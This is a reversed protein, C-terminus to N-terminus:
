QHMLLPKPDDVRGPPRVGPGKGKIGLDKDMDNVYKQLRKIVDPHQSAVDTTESIDTDLNYLKPFPPKSATQPQGQLKNVERQPSIAMKWPGSRVAQLQNGDFYYQVKRKSETAKGLLLPSIDVGDIKRDTPVSGGALHVFTPLVDINGTVVDCTTGAAIHGPWWAITPERMGGEYTGGKGGRLPTALGAQDGQTLWPGNDSSFLVLTNKSLNLQRITDMVKGTSYDMEQIWDGYKGNKSKGQFAKGPHLPVHVATHAFYLFFPGAKHDRIFKVAEKTYLSEIVDQRDGNMTAIVKGDRVLPLPPRRKRFPVQTQGDWEGGMDNSYPLGLYHDFGRHTPLFEQQDGVHWKGICETAYGQKKLLDAITHEKASLGIKADPFIVRPLSVRKAYCGTLIQARSPTCVPACYFSTLKMGEAALRNCAPTSNLKSGFPQIDAYGMDDVYIIVLNPRKASAIHTEAPAFRSFAMSVFACAALLTYKM